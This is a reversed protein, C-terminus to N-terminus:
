HQNSDYVTMTCTSRAPTRCKKAALLKRHKSSSAQEISLPRKEHLTPPATAAVESPEIAATMYDADTLCHEHTEQTALRLRKPGGGELSPSLADVRTILSLFTANQSLADAGNKIVARSPSKPKIGDRIKGSPKQLNSFGLVMSLVSAPERAAAMQCGGFPSVSV